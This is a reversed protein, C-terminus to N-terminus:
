HDCFVRAARTHAEAVEDGILDVIASIGTGSMVLILVRRTTTNAAASPQLGVPCKTGPSDGM